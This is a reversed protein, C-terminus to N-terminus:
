RTEGDIARQRFTPKNSAIGDTDRNSRIRSSSILHDQNVLIRNEGATPIRTKRCVIASRDYIAFIRSDPNRNLVPHAVYGDFMKRNLIATCLHTQAQEARATSNFRVTM